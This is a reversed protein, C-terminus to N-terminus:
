TCLRMLQIFYNIKKFDAVMRQAIPEKSSLNVERWNVLLEPRKKQVDEVFNKLHKGIVILAQVAENIIELANDNSKTIINNIVRAQTPDRDVRLMSARLRSGDVGDESLVIDIDSILTPTELITHLAESMEKSMQNNTWQGRILLIDCLDKIEKDVFDDLFAKLYNTGEAYLFYELNRRRYNESIPVTYNELRVLDTTDFIQGLLAKIQSNKKANNIRSIYGFAEAKKSELWEEGITERIVTNKFQWVPNRLVYQVMLELIKSAHVERIKKLMNKFQDPNVLEQGECKTILSLLSDWDEEPKLHLSVSLFDGIQDIILITKIAPFKPEVIFSGDVFHTDFKKFFGVFNFRVFHGLIGALEYRRNATSIREEDFQNVLTEVDKKISVILEEPTMTKAKADLNAIDLRKITDQINSDICSEVILSKLKILKRDDRYFEMIPYILKYVSFLFSSFSPDAEETRVRFFRVYKSQSLEKAIGKLMNQKDDTLGDNSFLSFMKDLIDEAM